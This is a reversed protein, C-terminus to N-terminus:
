GVRCVVQGHIVAFWGEEAGELERWAAAIGELHELNAYGGEVAKRRYESQLTRDAWLGCWFAREEPTSFTWAAVSADIDARAFGAQLAVAHLRKGIDPDTKLGRAVDLYLAKWSHLGPVDPYWDMASYTSDRVALIGGPRVLRKMVELASVPDQLHQLVQHAHVIDFGAEHMGKHQEWRFIDGVEFHINTVGREEAHKRAKEIVEPSPDIAYVHGQPVRAALDVSITGPGCGVDLITLSPNNLYRLLHPCSNEVTRWSHSRLVSAHHGHIYPDSM